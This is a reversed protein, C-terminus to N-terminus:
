DDSLLKATNVLAGIGEITIEIQDGPQHAFENPVMIGTGTTLVTGVPIPNNRALFGVLQELRFKIQSSSVEGEFLAEGDRAIRCSIRLNYPDEIASAATICPGLACCGQFTKSQPLYLPNERELDWASVDNCVTYGLIQDPRGLVLALEPETATLESDTRIGVEGNPGACRTPTAKFFVEPRDSNYVRSYIDQASDEDRTSASRLYTVGCGWVEPADIPVLLHPKAPDPPVSLDEFSFAEGRPCSQAGEELSIGLSVAREVLDLTSSCDACTIDVVSADEWLGIRRGTGPIHFQVLKM